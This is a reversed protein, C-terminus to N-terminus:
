KLPTLCQKLTPGKHRKKAEQFRRVYIQQAEDYRKLLYPKQEEPYDAITLDDRAPKSLEAKAREIYSILFCPDEATARIPEHNLEVYLASTIERENHAVLWSSQTLRISGNGSRQSGEKLLRVVEGKADRIAKGGNVLVMADDPLNKVDVLVSTHRGPIQLTEGIGAKQGQYSVELHELSPSYIGHGAVITRGALAADLISQFTVKGKSPLVGVLTRLIEPKGLGSGAPGKEDDHALCSYDSGGMLSLKFGSNLLRVYADFTGVDIPSNAMDPASNPSSNDEAELGKVSWDEIAVSMPMEFPRGFDKEAMQPFGNPNWKFMHYAIVFPRNSVAKSESEDTEKKLADLILFPSKLKEPGNKDWFWDLSKAGLIGLHSGRDSIFWSVELGEVLNSTTPRGTEKDRSIQLAHNNGHIKEEETQKGTMSLPFNKLESETPRHPGWYNDVLLQLGNQVGYNILESRSAQFPCGNADKDRSHVHPDVSIWEFTQPSKANAFRSFLTLVLALFRM